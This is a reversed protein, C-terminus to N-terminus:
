TLVRLPAGDLFARINEVARTYYTRHNSASVHRMPDDSPLPETSSM